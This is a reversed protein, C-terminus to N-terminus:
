EIVEYNETFDDIANVMKALMDRVEIIEGDEYMEVARNLDDIIKKDKLEHKKTIYKM